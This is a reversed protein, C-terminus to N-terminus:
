VGLNNLIDGRLEPSRKSKMLDKASNFHKFSHDLEGREIDTAGYFNELQAIRLQDKPLKLLSNAQKAYSFAEKWKAQFSYVRFLQLCAAVREYKYGPQGATNSLVESNIELSLNLEGLQFSLKGLDLMLNLHKKKTLIKETFAIVHDFNLRVNTLSFTAEKLDDPQHLHGGTLPIHPERSSFLVKEVFFKIRTEGLYKKLIKDLDSKIEWSYSKFM